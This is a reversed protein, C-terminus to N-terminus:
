HSSSKDGSRSTELVNEVNAALQDGAPDPWLHGYTDMTVKLTSHGMLTQLRKAQVGQEIQLSAYVHRLMHLGFRPQRFNMQAKTWSRILVSAPEDTVLGARNLLPVWFRNWLNAYSWVKGEENPFVFESPPAAELWSKLSRVTEAGLVVDRRSMAAKVRGIKDDKDAKQLVQLKPQADDLFLAHIPLGRLESARLGAYMLVRIVAEARGNNDFAKAADLLLLLDAKSPLIFKAGEQGALPRSTVMIKSEKVPNFTLYGVRVGFSCVQSLTTRVKATMQPSVRRYLRNLFQQVEPTNIESCKLQAFERDTLIHRRIHQRLQDLTSKERHENKVAVEFEELYSETLARVPEYASPARFGVTQLHESAQKKTPFSKSRFVRKGCHYEDWQADWHTGRKGVRKKVTGM